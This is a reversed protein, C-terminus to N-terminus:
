CVDSGAEKSWVVRKLNQDYVSRRKQVMPPLPGTYKGPMLRYRAAKAGAARIGRRADVEIRVYGALVLFRVFNQATMAAIQVDETSAALALEAVSFSGLIRMTRWLNECYTPPLVNGRLDIRPAEIGADKKLRYRGANTVRARQGTVEIYGATQLSRLYKRTTETSVRSCTAVARATFEARNERIAEWIRQRQVNGGVADGEAEIPKMAM